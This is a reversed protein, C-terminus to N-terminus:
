LDKRNLFGVTFGYIILAVAWRNPELGNDIIALVGIAVCMLSLFLWINFLMTTIGFGAFMRKLAFALFYLALGGWYGAVLVTAVMGLNKDVSEAFPILFLLAVGIVMFYLHDYRSM